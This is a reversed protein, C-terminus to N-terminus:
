TSPGGSSSPSSMVRGSERWSRWSPPSGGPSTTGTTRRPTSRRWSLVAPAQKQVHGAADRLPPRVLHAAVIRGEVLILVVGTPPGPPPASGGGLLPLARRSTRALVDALSTGRVALPRPGAPPVLDDIAATLAERAAESNGSAVTVAVGGEGLLWLLAALESDLTGAEILAVISSRPREDFVRRDYRPSGRKTVVSEPLDGDSRDVM